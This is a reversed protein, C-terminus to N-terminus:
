PHPLHFPRTLADLAQATADAQIHPRRSFAASDWASSATATDQAQLLALLAARAAADIGQALPSAPMLAAALALAQHPAAVPANHLLAPAGHAFTQGAQHDWALVMGACLPHPPIAVWVWARDGGSRLRHLVVSGHATHLTAPAEAHWPASSLALGTARHRCAQRHAAERAPADALGYPQLSAHPSLPQFRLLTHPTLPKPDTYGVLGIARRLTNGARSRTTAVVALMHRARAGKPGEARAEPTGLLLGDPLTAPQPQLAVLRLKKDARAAEQRARKRTLGAHLHCLVQALTHGGGDLAPLPVPLAQVLADHALERRTIAGRTQAPLGHPQNAHDPLRAALHPALMGVAGLLRAWAATFSAEPLAATRQSHLRIAPWDHQSWTIAVEGSPHTPTPHCVCSLRLVKRDEVWDIVSYGGADAAAFALGQPTARVYGVSGQPLALLDHAPGGHPDIRRTSFRARLLAAPAESNHLLAMKAHASIPLAAVYAPTLPRIRPAELHQDMAWPVPGESAWAHLHGMPVLPRAGLWHTPRTYALSLAHSTFSLTYLCADGSSLGHPALDHAEQALCAEIHAHLRGLVAEQAEAIATAQAAHLRTLHRALAEMSARQHPLDEPLARVVLFLNPALCVEAGGPGAVVTGSARCHPHAPDIAAAQGSLPDTHIHM